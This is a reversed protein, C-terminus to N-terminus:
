HPTAHHYPCNRYDNINLQNVILNVVQTCPCNYHRIILSNVLDKTLFPAHMCVAM